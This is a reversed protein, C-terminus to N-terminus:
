LGWIKKNMNELSPVVQEPAENKCFIRVEGDNLVQYAEAVGECETVFITGDSFQMWGGIKITIDDSISYDKIEGLWIGYHKEKCM